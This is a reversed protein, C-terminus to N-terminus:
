FEPRGVLTPMSRYEQVALDLRNCSGYLDESSRVYGIVRTSSGPVTRCQLTSVALRGPKLRSKGGPWSFHVQTAFEEVRTEPLRSATRTSVKRVVSCDCHRQQIPHDRPAFIEDRDVDRMSLAVMEEAAAGRRGPRKRRVRLGRRSAALDSHQM